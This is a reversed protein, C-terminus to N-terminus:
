GSNPLCSRSVSRKLTMKNESERIWIDGSDTGAVASFTCFANAENIIFFAAATGFQGGGQFRCEGNRGGGACRAADDGNGVAIDGTFSLYEIDDAPVDAGGIEEGESDSAGDVAIQNVTDGFGAQAFGKHYGIRRFGGGSGITETSIYLGGYQGIDLYGIVAKVDIVDLRGGKGGEKGASGNDKKAFPFSLGGSGYVYGALGAAPVIRFVNRYRGHNGQFGIVDYLVQPCTGSHFPQCIVSDCFVELGIGFFFHRFQSEAVAHHGGIGGENGNGFFYAVGFSFTGIYFLGKRDGHIYGFPGYSVAVSDARFRSTEKKDKEHGGCHEQIDQILVTFLFRGETFFSRM